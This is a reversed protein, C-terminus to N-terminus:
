FITNITEVVLHHKQDEDWEELEADNFVASILHRICTNKGPYDRRLMSAFCEYEKVKVKFDPPNQYSM